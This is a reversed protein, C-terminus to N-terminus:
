ECQISPCVTDSLRCGSDSATLTLLSILSLLRDLHPTPIDKCGHFGVDAYGQDDSLILLINPKLPPPEASWGTPAVMMLCATLALFQRMHPALM